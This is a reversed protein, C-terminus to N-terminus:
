ERWLVVSEILHISALRYSNLLKGLYEIMDKSVVESDKLHNKNYDLIEKISEERSNINKLVKQVPAEGWSFEEIEKAM